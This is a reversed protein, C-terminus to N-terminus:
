ASSQMHVARASYVRKASCTPRAASFSRSTTGPMVTHSNSMHSQSPLSTFWIPRWGGSEEM